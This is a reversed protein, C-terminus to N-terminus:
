NGQNKEKLFSWKELNGSGRFTVTFNGNHIKRKEINTSHKKTM